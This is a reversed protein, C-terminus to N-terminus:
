ISFAQVEWSESIKPNKLTQYNKENSFVKQGKSLIKYYKRYKSEDKVNWYSKILGTKEMKRLVPYLCGEKWTIEKQSNEKVKQMIEYGFSDETKLIALIVPILNTGTLKIDINIKSDM